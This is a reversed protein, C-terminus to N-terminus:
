GILLAEPTLVDDISHLTAEVLSSIVTVDLKETQLTKSLKAVQSLVYDLLFMASITSKKSLAKSIGLAEPEHTEEHITNLAIVIVCYNEKVVKVCHKHALWQTDSPKVIKFEQIELVRQIEKLCEARKPSYHFYKWHQTFMNSVKLITQLKFVLWNCSIATATCLFQTLHIRTQFPKFEMTGALFLQQEM